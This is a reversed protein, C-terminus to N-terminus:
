GSYQAGQQLQFVEQLDRGESFFYYQEGYPIVVFFFYIMILISVILLYFSMNPQKAAMIRGGYLTNWNEILFNNHNAGIKKGIFYSRNV